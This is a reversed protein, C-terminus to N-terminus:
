ESKLDFDFTTSGLGITRKETSEPGYKNPFLPLMLQERAGLKTQVFEGSPKDSAGTFQFIYEGAIPGKAKPILYKGDVIESGVSPGATSATPVLMVSGKSASQGDLKVTGSVEFRQPGSSGSCGLTSFVIAAACAAILPRFRHTRHVTRVTSIAAPLRRALCPCPVLGRSTMFAKLLSLLM